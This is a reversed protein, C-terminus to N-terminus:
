YNVNELYTSICNKFDELNNFEKGWDGLEIPYFYYKNTTLNAIAYSKNNFEIGIDNAGLYFNEKSNYFIEIVEVKNKQEIAKTKITQIGKMIFLLAVLFVITLKIKNKKM